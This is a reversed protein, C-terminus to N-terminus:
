SPWELRGVLSQFSTVGHAVCWADLERVIREPVRPDKLAATGIAMLSAGAMAYQLVADASGIGGIGIIPVSWLAPKLAGWMYKGSIRGVLGQYRGAAALDGSAKAAKAKEKLFRLDARCQALLQQRSAFKQLITVGIGSVVGVIAISIAAPFRSVWLLIWDLPVYIANLLPTLADFIANM